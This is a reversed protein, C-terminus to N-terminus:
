NMEMEVIEMERGRDIVFSSSGCLPCAFVYLEDGVSFEGACSNCRGGVSVIELAFRADAAVTNEKLADLAFTLSEPMVGAAKGLRITVSKVANRGHERCAEDLIDLISLAISSEHMVEGSEVTERDIKQIAFGAHVLVYDGVRSEEPLLM